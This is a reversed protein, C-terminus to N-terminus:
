EAGSSTPETNADATPTDVPTTAGAAPTSAAEAAPSQDRDGRNDPRAPDRPDGREADNRPDRRVGRGGRFEGPPGFQGGRRGRGRRAGAGPGPGPEADPRRELPVVGPGGDPGVPPRGPREQRRVFRSLEGFEQRDLLADGNNDFWAFLPELNRGPPGDPRPRVFEGEPRYGGEIPPRFGGDGGDPRGPEDGRIQGFVSPNGRGPGGFSARDRGRPGGFGGPSGPPQAAAPLVMSGVLVLAWLGLVYRM